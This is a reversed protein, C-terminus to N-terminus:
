KPAIPPHLLQPITNTIGITQSKASHNALTPRCAPGRTTPLTFHSRLGNVAAIALREPRGRTEMEILLPGTGRRTARVDIFKLYPM